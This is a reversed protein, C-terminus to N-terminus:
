KQLSRVPRVHYDYGVINWYVVGHLFYVVWVLDGTSLTDSTWIWEQKASFLPDIYLDGNMKSRELLSAAEESTPLRWDGYGAHSRRNLDDIWQKAKDYSIREESGSQHWMLGTAHDIVVKERNITKAEYKNIFDGSKNWNSDFFDRRKLMTEVASSSLSEGRSRLSIRRGILIELRLLEQEARQRLEDDKTAYPNNEDYHRLFQEWAAKKEERTSVPNKNIDEVSRFDSNMKNQWDDWSKLAEEQLKTSEEISSLDLKEAKKPFAPKTGDASITAKMSELVFVFDGKDLSPYRIKGYQPHQFKNYEPVKNKL